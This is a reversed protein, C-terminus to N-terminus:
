VRKLKLATLYAYTNGLLFIITMFFSIVGWWGLLLNTFTYKWFIKDICNRCLSGSTHQERRMILM